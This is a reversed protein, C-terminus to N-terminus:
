NILQMNAPQPSCAKEVFQNVHAISQNFPGLKSLLIDHDAEPVMYARSMPNQHIVAFLAHVAKIDVHSEYSLRDSTLMLAPLASAAAAAGGSELLLAQHAEAIMAVWEIYYPVNDTPNLKPDIKCEKRGSAQALNCRQYVAKLVPPNTAEKQVIMKPFCRAIFNLAAAPVRFIPSRPRWFPSTYILAKVKRHLAVGSTRLVDNEYSQLILAGTSNGMFVINSYGKSSLRMIANDLVDYYYSVWKANNSANPPPISNYENGAEDYGLAAYPRGYHPWDLGCFDASKIEKCVASHSFYRGFGPLYVVCTDSTRHEPCVLYYLKEHSSAMVALLGPKCAESKYGNEDEVEAEDHCFPKRSTPPITFQHETINSKGGFPKLRHAALLLVYVTMVLSMVTFVIHPVKRTILVCFFWAVISYLPPSGNLWPTLSGM